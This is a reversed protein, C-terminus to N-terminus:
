FRYQFGLGLGGQHVTDRWFRFSYNGEIYIRWGAKPIKLAMGGVAMAAFDHRTRRQERDFILVPGSGFYPVLWSGLKFPMIFVLDIPVTNTRGGVLSHVTIEMELKDQILVLGWMLGPGFGDRPDSWVWNIDLGTLFHHEEETFVGEKEENAFALPSSVLFVILAFMLVSYRVSM